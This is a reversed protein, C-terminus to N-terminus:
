RYSAGKMGRRLSSVAVAIFAFSLCLLLIDATSLLLNRTPIYKGLLLKVLSATTTVMMFGAPLLTFLYPKRKRMLWLTVCTLTLAALLQNATGFIPWIALFANTKALIYMLVVCILSNFYYSRVIQPPKKFITKWLDEFLYRNLRVATDLTTVVFGEVLLIGFVTAYTHSLGLAKSLLGGMGLAFGLIPNSRGAQPFLINKYTAFSVGVGIATVVCIALIGELLMGGYGIKKAHTESSIQKSTTGSGVLAHFGSIAGCAVTIFLIPWLSGLAKTGSAIDFGPADFTLGKIGAVFTATVLTVIGGFLIFSNTFDRPQLIIWVPIGSAFFVYITLIIM